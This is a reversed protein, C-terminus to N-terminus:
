RQMVPHPTEIRNLLARAWVAARGLEGTLLPGEKGEVFFSEPPAVLTVGMHRLSAAMRRAASGTIWRPKQFRTDFCAVARGHLQRPTLDSLLAQIAETSQWGQTPSGLILLDIGELDLPHAPDVHALRVEGTTRLTDAIAAAIRETNGFQSDYVVLAHM